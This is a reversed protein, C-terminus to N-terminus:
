SKVYVPTKYNERINGKETYVGIDVLFRKADEKSSAKEDMYEAFKKMYELKQTEDM